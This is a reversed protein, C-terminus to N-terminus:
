TRAARERFGAGAPKKEDRHNCTNEAWTDCAQDQAQCNKDPARADAQLGAASQCFVAVCRCFVAIYRQIRPTKLRFGAPVVIASIPIYRASIVSVGGSLLWVMFDMFIILFCACAPKVRMSSIITTAMIPM